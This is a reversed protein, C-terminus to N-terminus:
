FCGIGVRGQFQNDVYSCTTSLNYSFVLIFDAYKKMFKANTM